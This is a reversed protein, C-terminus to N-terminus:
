KGRSELIRIDGEDLLRYLKEVQANNLKVKKVKYKILGRKTKKMVFMQRFIYNLNKFLSVKENISKENWYEEICLVKLLTEYRSEIGKLKRIENELMAERVIASCERKEM